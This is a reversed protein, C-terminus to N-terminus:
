EDCFKKLNKLIRETSPNPGREVHSGIWEYIGSVKLLLQFEYKLYKLLEENSNKM